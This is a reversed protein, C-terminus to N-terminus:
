WGLEIWGQSAALIQRAEAASLQGDGDLDGALQGLDSLGDGVGNGANLTSQADEQTLAGDVDADGKVVVAIEGGEDLQTTFQYSNEQSTKEASLAQYGDEGKVVVVCAQSSNVTFSNEGATWGGEPSNVGADSRNDVTVNVASLPDLTQWALVPYGDNTAANGAKYAKGLTSAMDRLQDPTVCSVATTNVTGNGDLDAVALGETFYSNTVNVVAGQALRGLLAGVGPATGNNVTSGGFSIVSWNGTNYYAGAQDGDCGTTGDPAADTNDITVKGTNYCNTITSTAGQYQSQIGVLGGVGFRGSYGTQTCHIAGTNYCDTLFTTASFGVIGGLYGAATIAGNNVCGTIYTNDGSSASGVIGAANGYNLGTATVSANNVCNEITVEGDAHAVLGAVCWQGTVSGNVTVNRIVAGDSAGRFLGVYDEYPRVLNVTVTHGQGDFTGAYGKNNLVASGIPLNGCQSADIDATLKANLTNSGQNVQYAFWDLEAASSLLYTGNEDTAPVALLTVPFTFSFTQGGYSGSVTLAATDAAVSDGPEVTYDTMQVRAGDSYVAYVTLDGLAVPTGVVYSTVPSGEYVIEALQFDGTALVPYGGNAGSADAAYARQGLNLKQVFSADQMEEQTLSTTVDAWYGGVGVKATGALFYCNVVEDAEAIESGLIAGTSYISYAITGANYCNQILKSDSQSNGVDRGLIGGVYLLDSEVPSSLAGVNYCNTIVVCSGVGVLGGLGLTYSYSSSYVSQMTVAGRNVCRDLAPTHDGDTSRRTSVNGALGGAGRAFVGTVAGENVCNTLVADSGLSGVLGGVYGSSGGTVAAKNVCNDIVTQGKEANILAGVTGTDGSGVVGATVVNRITAAYTATFLGYGTGHLTITHGQGDFTGKYYYGAGIRTFGPELTFDATVKADATTDGAAVQKAFMEFEDATGILYYGDEDQQLTPQEQITLRMSASKTVGEYTYSIAVDITQARTLEAGDRYAAPVTYEGADLVRSTGDSYSATVVLGTLDVADGVTYSTKAPGSVTLGTLAKAEVTVTFTGTFEGCIVTVTREGVTDLTVSEVTYDTTAKTSGDSYNVVVTLGATDLQQGVVYTTKAPGTVTIGVPTGEEVAGQVFVAPVPYDALGEDFAWAHGNAENLGAAVATGEMDDVPTCTTIYASCDAGRTGTVSYAGLYYCNSIGTFSASSSSNAGAISAGPTQAGTGSATYLPNELGTVQGVSLCNAITANSQFGVIGGRYTATGQVAGLNLCNTITVSGAKSCVGVIGGNGCTGNTSVAYDGYVTAANVCSDVVIPSYACGIIGGVAKKGYIWGELWVNQIVSPSAATSGNIFGFLGVFTEVEGVAGDKSTYRMYVNYIKHGQGDFSGSFYSRNISNVKGNAIVDNYYYNGGIPMTMPGSWTDGSQVGGMNLDAGLLITKGAFTDSASPIEGTYPVNQAEIISFNGGVIWALGAWQAPTTITFTTDETNYWSFDASGDWAAGSDSAEAAGAPLMVLSLVM